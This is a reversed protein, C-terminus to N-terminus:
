ARTGIVYIAVSIDYTYLLKEIKGMHHIKRNFKSLYAFISRAANREVM